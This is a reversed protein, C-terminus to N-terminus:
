GKPAWPRSPTSSASLIHRRTRGVKWNLVTSRVFAAPWNMESTTLLGPKRGAGHEYVKRVAEEAVARTQPKYRLLARGDDGLTPVGCLSLVGAISRATYAGRSFGFLFIRDGPEYMNLIAEYCDIINRSIGRGTVSALTKRVTRVVRIPASPTDDDTGLGPDYFTLQEAPDIDGNPGNRSARYLKYIYSLRQDPRVGGAQGTGDSFIVINKSM